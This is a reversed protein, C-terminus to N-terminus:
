PSWHRQHTSKGLQDLVFILITLHTAIFLPPLHNTNSDFPKYEFRITQIRISYLLLASVVHVRQSAILAVTLKAWKRFTKPTCRFLSSMFNESGYVKLFALGWLLHKLAYGEINLIDASAVVHNWLIECVFADVGFYTAFRRASVAYTATGIVPMAAEYWKREIETAM